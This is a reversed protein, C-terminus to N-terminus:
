GLIGLERAKGVAETRNAVELKRYISATHAKVTGPSVILQRAIEQNTKGLALHALVELERGSLAEVLGGGPRAAAGALEAHGFAALIKRAYPQDKGDAARLYAALLERAPEGVDLFARVYGEPEALALAAAVLELAAPMRGLGALAAALLMKSEIQRSVVSGSIIPPSFGELLTAAEAHRGQALRIRGLTLRYNEPHLAYDESRLTDDTWHAAAALDGSALLVRARLTLTDEDFERPRAFESMRAELEGVVQLAETYTGQAMLLRALAVRGFGDTMINRWPASEELGERIYQGAEALQNWEYYAEGLDIKMSGATYVFRIGQERLPSLFERALAACAHLRGLMLYVRSVFSALTPIKGVGHHQREREICQLAFEVGRLMQGRRALAMGYLYDVVNRLLEGSPIEDLQSSEPLPYDYWGPGAPALFALATDIVTQMWGPEAGPDAALHLAMASMLQRAQPIRAELILLWAQYLGIRPRRVIIEEPLHSALQFVSPDSEALRRPGYREILRAAQEIEQAAFLQHIAELIYGHAELWAAARRHLRPALQPQSQQLRARLLDAFLHHYRYWTRADDLPVLFLNARDLQELMEAARGGAARVGAVPGGTAPGGTAPGGTAPGGTARGNGGGAAGGDAEGVADDLLEDCLAPTLRELIATRLLFDQIEQPQNALVEELLYDLIYRNTGSFGDIFGGKDERDRMSLAAMQLGAIWGETRAELAAVAGADLQLGMIENLFQAAEAETFRLDSARLEVIQGRARLRALPLPPDSRTAIVLHLNHPCHEMLFAMEAHVAPNTLFQYDDLVLAIERDLEEVDNILSTLIAEPAAQVSAQMLQLAEKGPAERVRDHGSEPLDRYTRRPEPVPEQLAAILYRLFRGPQNDDADLSLWAVKLCCGAVCTAVLTTKGFGAPATVLTLPGNLGQAIQEQLRPRSVLESRIYPLHLKTSLLQDTKQM